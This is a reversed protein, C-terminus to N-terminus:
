RRVGDLLLAACHETYRAVLAADVDSGTAAEMWTRASFFFECAGVLSAFFLAPDLGGRFEGAAEGRALLRTHFALLPRAFGEALRGDPDGLREGLAVAYPYRLYNEIVGGIHRRLTERPSLGLGELADLQTVVGVVTRELLADLLARKGGFCYSVMAVNVGARACLESVSPESGRREVLLDHAASLLKERTVDVPEGV